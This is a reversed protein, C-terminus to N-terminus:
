SAIQAVTALTVGAARMEDLASESAQATLSQIADTVVTLPKGFQLLGRVAHLVCIETVVGYVVFRDPNLRRVIPAFTRTQFVDVTQKEVVIQQAGEIAIDGERNPVVV